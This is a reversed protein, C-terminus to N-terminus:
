NKSRDNEQPILQHLVEGIAVSLATEYTRYTAKDMLLDTRQSWRCFYGKREGTESDFRPSVVLDAGLEERLWKAAQDIRMKPTLFGDTVEKMILEDECWESRTTGPILELYTKGKWKDIDFGLSVIKKAEEKSIYTNNM